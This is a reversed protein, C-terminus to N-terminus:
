ALVSHTRVIAYEVVVRREDLAVGPEEGALM